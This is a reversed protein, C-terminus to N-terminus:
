STLDIVTSEIGIQCIGGDIICEIKEYFDNIVHEAKTPSPKTSFNASPTVIPLNSQKILELAIKNKPMRIAVTDLGATVILPVAKNKKFIITLPGPWFKKILKKANSSIEYTLSLLDKKSSIHVILPNDLARKKVRFIQKIAKPNFASAGLGYVTETSFAVLKGEQIFKAAKKIKFSDIKNLDIKFIETKM